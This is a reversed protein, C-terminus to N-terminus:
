IFAVEIIEIMKHIVCNQKNKIFKSTLCVIQYTNSMVMSPHNYDM